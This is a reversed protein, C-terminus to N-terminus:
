PLKEKLEHYTEKPVMGCQKCDSCGKGKCAPCVAVIRFKRLHAVIMTLYDRAGLLSQELSEHNFYPHMKAARKMAAAIGKLDLVALEGELFDITPKIREVSDKYRGRCSRPVITGFEDVPPADPLPPKTGPGDKSANIKKCEKCDPIVDQNVDKKRQCVPCFLGKRYKPYEKGDRGTVTEPQKTQEDDEQVDPSLRNDGSEEAQRAAKLDKLVTPQSIGEEEAITRTSKGNAHAQAVRQVRAVRLTALRDPTLHRRNENARVVFDQAEELTGSFNLFSPDVRAATAARYRNRGDLIQGEFMIIPYRKDFGYVRMDSEMRTLDAEDLYDYKDALPHFQLEAMLRTRLFALARLLETLGFM